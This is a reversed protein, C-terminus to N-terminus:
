SVSLRNKCMQCTVEDKDYTGNDCVRPARGCLAEPTTITQVMSAVAKNVLFCIRPGEQVMQAEAWAKRQRAGEPGSPVDPPGLPIALPPIGSVNISLMRPREKPMQLGFLWAVFRRM